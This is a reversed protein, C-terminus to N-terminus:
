EDPHRFIARDERQLLYVVTDGVIQQQWANKYTNWLESIDAIGEGFQRLTKQELDVAEILILVQGDGGLTEDIASQVRLLYEQSDEAEEYATSLSLVNAETFRAVYAELIWKRDIIILDNSDTLDALPTVKWYYYDNTRTALFTMSGVFNVLFILLALVSLVAIKRREAGAGQEEGATLLMIFLLWWAISQPIWHKFNHPDHFFFFASYILFWTLTLRFIAGHGNWVFQFDRYRSAIVFVVLFAVLTSLILLVVAARADLGRVLYIEDILWQDAFVREAFASIAPIAFIFHGGIISRSFGVATRFLTSLAIPYWFESESGYSTLWTWVDGLSAPRVTALIVTVYPIAVTPIFAAAYSATSRWFPHADDRRIFFALLVVPIFLIHSQHFLTALGSTFGILACQKPELKKATLLYLTLMLFFLQVIYVDVCDSYYWFAFSFAPLMTGLLSVVQNLGLRERLVRYFVCLTLSGFISDLLPVVQASDATVGLSRWLLLWVTALPQNLLHNPHFPIRGSDLSNDISNIYEISDHSAALNDSVTFAYLALSLLFPVSLERIPSRMGTSSSTSQTRM